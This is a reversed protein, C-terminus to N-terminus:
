GGLDVCLLDDAADSTYLLCGNSPDVAVYSPSVFPKALPDATTITAGTIEGVKASAPNFLVVRDNGTDAVWVDGASLGGSNDVAVGLPGSFSGFSGAPVYGAYAPAGSFVLAGTMTCLAALVLRRANM